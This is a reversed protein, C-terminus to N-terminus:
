LLSFMEVREVRVAYGQQVHIIPFMKGQPPLFSNWENMTTYIICLILQLKTSQWMWVFKKHHVVWKFLTCTIYIFFVSCFVGLFVDCYRLPEYLEFLVITFQLIYFIEAISKKKSYSKHANVLLSTHPAITTINPGTIYTAHLVNDGKLQQQICYSM